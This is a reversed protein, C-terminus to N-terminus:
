AQRIGPVVAAWRGFVGKGDPEGRNHGIEDMQVAVGFVAEEVPGDADLIQDGRGRVEAARGRGDGVVAVHVPVQDKVLGGFLGFELGNHAALDVYGLLAHAEFVGAGGAVGSPM